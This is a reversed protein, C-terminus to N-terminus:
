ALFAQISHPRYRTPNAAQTALPEKRRVCEGIVAALRAAPQATADLGYKRTGRSVATIFATQAFQNMQQLIAAHAWGGVNKSSHQPLSNRSQLITKRRIGNGHNGYRQVASFKPLAAEVLCLQDRASCDFADSWSPQM